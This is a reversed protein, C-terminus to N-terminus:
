AFRAQASRIGSIDERRAAVIRADHAPRAGDGSRGTIEHELPVFTGRDM